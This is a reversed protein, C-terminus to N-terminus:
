LVLWFAELTKQWLDVGLSSSTCFERENRAVTCTAHAGSSHTLPRFSYRARSRGLIIMVGLCKGCKWCELSSKEVYLEGGCAM